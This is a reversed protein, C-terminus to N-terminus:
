GKEVIADNDNEGSILGLTNGYFDFAQDITGRPITLNVHALGAILPESPHGNAGNMKCIPKDYYELLEFSLLAQGSVLPPIHQKYPLTPM